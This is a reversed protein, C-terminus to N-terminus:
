ILFPSSPIQRYREKGRREEREKTRSLQGGASALRGPDRARQSWGRRQWRRLSAPRCQTREEVPDCGLLFDPNTSNGKRKM